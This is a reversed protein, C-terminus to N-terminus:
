RTTEIKRTDAPAASKLGDPQVSQEVQFPLRRGDSLKPAEEIVQWNKGVPVVLPQTIATEPVPISKKTDFMSCSCLIFFPTLLVVLRSINM